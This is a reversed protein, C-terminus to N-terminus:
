HLKILQRGEIAISSGLLNRLDLVSVVDDDVGVKRMSKSDVTWYRGQGTINEFGTGSVFNFDHFLPQYVYYDADPEDIGGPVSAVGAASAEETVVQETYAGAVTEAAGTQDSKFHIVIRTRIITFPRIALVAANYSAVITNSVGVVQAATGAGIWIMTRSPPRQFSRHRRAM